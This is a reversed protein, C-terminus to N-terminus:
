TKIYQISWTRAQLPGQDREHKIKMDALTVRLLIKGEHDLGRGDEARTLQRVKGIIKVLVMFFIKVKNWSGFDWQCSQVHIFDQIFRLQSWGRLSAQRDLILRELREETQVALSELNFRISQDLAGRASRYAAVGSLGMPVLSLTVLVLVLQWRVSLRM